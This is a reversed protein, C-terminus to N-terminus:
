RFGSASSTRNSQKLRRESMHAIAARHFNQEVTGRDVIGNYPHDSLNDVINVEFISPRVDRFV